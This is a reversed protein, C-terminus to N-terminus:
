IGPALYRTGSVPHWIGHALYRTGSVPHWIGPSTVLGRELAYHLTLMALLRPKSAYSLSWGVVASLLPRLAPSEDLFITSGDEGPLMPAGHHPHLLVQAAVAVLPTALSVRLEPQCLRSALRELPSSMGVRELPQPPEDTAGAHPLHLAAWVARAYVNQLCVRLQPLPSGELAAEVAAAAAAACAADCAVLSGVSLWLRMHRRHAEGSPSGEDPLLPLEVEVLQRFLARRFAVSLREAAGAVSTAPHRTGDETSTPARGAQSAGRVALAAVTPAHPSSQALQADALAACITSSPLVEGLLAASPPEGGLAAATKAAISRSSSAVPLLRAFLDAAGLARLVDIASGLLPLDRASSLAWGLVLEVVRPLAAEGGSEQLVRPAHALWEM